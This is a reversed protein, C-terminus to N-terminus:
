KVVLQFTTSNSVSNAADNGVVTITYTGPEASKSDQGGSGCGSACLFAFTITICLFVRSRRRAFGFVTVAAFICLATAPQGPTMGESREKLSSHTASSLLSQRGASACDSASTYITVSGTGPSTSQVVASTTDYCSNTLSAPASVSFAITGTYGGTPTVTITSSGSQGSRLTVNTATLDFSGSGSGGSGSVKVSLTSSSSSHTSDGSYAASVKYTGSTSFTTQYSAVGSTLSVPSGVNTGDIAFQVTGAPITAGSNSTVNATFTVSSNVAPNANSSTVVTTTAISTPASGALKAFAQLFNYADVTGWGTALDYGAAAAYGLKGNTCDPTGTRCPVINDGSTIDHFSAGSDSSGIQYLMPNINGQGSSALKQNLLALMGAFAPAGFSTGGAVTLENKSNRFGNTCSGQACFLYGDHGAAAALSIDPVDRRGDDPVGTGVQWSPKGFLASKGGGGSALGGGNNISDTTENWAAEPIYSLASGNSGNNSSNWYSGSGENFQTGGIATVYPSSAPLSLALGHTAVTVPQSGTSYDCGAAGSDGSAAIITQGQTAAQLFWSQLTSLDSASVETECGGYSVSIIPAIKNDIAYQLSDFVGYNKNNGTYIFYITANKAVAGSWEIDLDSEEEDGSGNNAASGSGPVLVTVPRNSALGSARRFADMDTTNIQTQGVIAIKQGAGDIGSSYVTKLDYITSFDDPALYHNGSTSSTFDPVVESHSPRRVHFPHPRFDTLNRIDLVIGALAAPISLPTANAVHVENRISYRHMETHFASEIQAATGSFQLSMGTPSVREVKFGESQLWGQIATLDAGSIGFRGAYSDPSLWQHYQPDSPNEQRQILADLEAQQADSLKFYITVNSFESDSGVRGIEQGQLATPTVSGQLLVTQRRDIPTSLRTTSQNQARCLISGSVTALAAFVFALYQVGSSVTARNV